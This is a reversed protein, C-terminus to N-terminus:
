NTGKYDTKEKKKKGNRQRDKNSQDKQHNKDSKDVHHPNAWGASFIKMAIISCHIVESIMNEKQDMIYAQVDEPLEACYQQRQEDAFRIRKYVMAKLNADWFHEM